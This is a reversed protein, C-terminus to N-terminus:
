GTACGKATAGGDVVIEEGTMYTNSLLFNVARVVAEPHDVDGLLTCQALREREKPTASDPILVSGPAVANVRIRPALEIAATRMLQKLAAKSALYSAHHKYPIRTGTCTLMVVSAGENMLGHSCQVLQANAKVNLALSEEWAVQSEELFPDSVYNGASLVLADLRGLFSHAHTIVDAASNDRLNGAVHGVQQKPYEASLREVLAISEPTRTTSHLVVDWGTDLLGEAIHRGLRRVGGTVLAAKRHTPM